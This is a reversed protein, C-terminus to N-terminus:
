SFYECRTYIGQTPAEYTQKNWKFIQINNDWQM